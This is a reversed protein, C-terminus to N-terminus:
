SRLETVPLVRPVEGGGGQSPLRCTRPGRPRNGLRPALEGAPDSRSTRAEAVRPRCSWSFVGSALGQVRGEEGACRPPATRPSNGGRAGAVRGGEGRRWCNEAGVRELCGVSDRGPCVFARRARPERALGALDGGGQYRVSVEAEQRAAAGGACAGQAREGWRGGDTPKRPFTTWICLPRM